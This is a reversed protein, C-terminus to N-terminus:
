NADLEPQKAKFENNDDYPGLISLSNKKCIKCNPAHLNISWVSYVKSVHAFLNNSVNEMDDDERVYTTDDAEDDDGAVLDPNFTFLDRGSVGFMKGSKYDSKKKDNAAKDKKIKESRQSFVVHSSNTNLQRCMSLKDEVCIASKIHQKLDVRM